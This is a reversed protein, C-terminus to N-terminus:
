PFCAETVRERFFGSFFSFSVAEKEISFLRLFHFKQRRPEDRTSSLLALRPGRNQHVILRRATPFGIFFFSLFCPPAFFLIFSVLFFFFSCFFFFFFFCFFFFFFFFSFVFVLFFWFCCFVGVLVFVFFFFVCFFCAGWWV